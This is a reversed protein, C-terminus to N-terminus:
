KLFRYLYSLITDHQVKTGKNDMDGHRIGALCIVRIGYKVQDEPSPIVEEDAEYDCGRLTYIQPENTRPMIMRRHDLSICKRIMDPYQAAFLMSMDGGNSHGALVLSKWNLDARIKKFEGITFLINTVGREWDPMRTQMFDGSMALPLDGPMEHQICIVYYGKAALPRTLCSYSQYSMGVNGGYGHNFIIVKTHKGVSKPQYVAVPIVRNRSSDYLSVTYESQASVNSLIFFTLIIIVSIYKLRM